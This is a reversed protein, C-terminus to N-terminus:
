KNVEVMEYLEIIDGEKIDNYNELSLGCEYGKQVERVDDKFRKLSALKGEFIVIGDRVLRVNDNRAVKGDTVYCGAITGVGSIRFIQRIEVHGTVVEKYTPDLLGKMAAQIDEIADYIVRYFRMDVKMGKALDTVNANPRVNFGIIIANSVAALQVDSENVTGVAGHIINIKVEANSLKELSQKVAEVSGHVDAKVIVNLEKVTGAQIRDFLDELTIEANSHGITSERHKEKREEALHRALREDEVVYFEQGAEPVEDLGLIEVPTSPGAAEIDQGKDNQMRRVRGVATGAVISDGTKLTGRQVLLTAIPGAARDLRSEIVTGKAQKNPAAKLELIDATLLVMELLTDINEHKLASVPVCITDGGWEEAVLGYETLEQKVKEPNANPSDIKNIAVIISVGAAKAHNIAEVTQPMVGDDAAVVLIAIDTVQAGRARMSTFAEHGPTDLFTIDRGNINVMYAGIHQTIGGAEEATVNTKKIADLLSTKGHDVHGMVVVVPPRPELEEEKDESDDFLIDEATVVVERETTIGFEDAVISATEYDISQNVNAIIGLDMLKMIVEASTKKIKESFTKVTMEAPLVVHKLVERPPPPASAKQKKVKKKRGLDIEDNYFEDLIFEDSLVEHIGKKQGIIFDPKKFRNKKTVGAKSVAIPKDLGKKQERKDLKEFDKANYSRREGTSKGKIDEIDTDFKPIDLDKKDKKKQDQKRIDAAGKKQVGKDDAAGKNKIEAPEQVPAEPEPKKVQEPTRAPYKITKKEKEQEKQLPLKEEAERGKESTEKAAATEKVPASEESSGQTDAKKVIPPTPEKKEEQAPTATKVSKDEAAAVPKEKASSDEVKKDHVEKEIKTVKIIKAEQEQKPAEKQEKRVVTDDKRDQLSEPDIKIIKIVPTDEEKAPEKKKEPESKVAKDSVTHKEAENKEKEAKEKELRMRRAKEKLMRMRDDDTVVKMDGLLGSHATERKKETFKNGKAQKGSGAKDRSPKGKSPAEAGKGKAGKPAEKSVKKVPESGKGSSEAQDKTPEFVVSAKVPKKEVAKKVTSAATKGETSQSEGKRIGLDIYLKELEDEEIYSMHNNKHVGLDALKELLRSSSTNLEKALEYVRIKALRKV